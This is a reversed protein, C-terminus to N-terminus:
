QKGREARTGTVRGEADIGGVAAFGEYVVATVATELREGPQLTRHTGREAGDNVSVPYGTCPELVVTNLGRWGGYSAFLWCSPLVATDFALGFGIGDRTNTLACWGDKLGTAYQFEATGSDAPLTKRMDHRGGSADEAYPWEYAFGSRGTRTEGFAEVYVNSAPLDIRCHEDVAMAAHLKWLYPFPLRGNNAIAHRFRLAADGARLTIWKDVRAAFVATEVWLHLCVEEDTEKEIRCEWPLTWLEGHDPLPEGALTEPIDNPFLEDWGGYFHDDYVAHGHLRRPKLRPHRWLLEKGAPKYVLQWIKAGLEPMVTVRLLENELVVVPIGRYSWDTDVRVTM